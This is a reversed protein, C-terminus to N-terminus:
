SGFSKRFRNVSRTMAKGIPGKESPEFRRITSAEAVAKDAMNRFPSSSKSPNLAFEISGIKDVLSLGRGMVRDLGDPPRRSHKEIFFDRGDYDAVGENTLYDGRDFGTQDSQAEICSSFKDRTIAARYVALLTYRAESKVRHAKAVWKEGSEENGSGFTQILDRETLSIIASYMEGIAYALCTLTSVGYRVTAAVMDAERSGQDRIAKIQDQLSVERVGYRERRKGGKKRHVIDVVTLSRTKKSNTFSGILPAVWRDLEALYNHLRVLKEIEACEAGAIEAPTFGLADAQDSALARLANSEIFAELEKRDESGVSEGKSLKAALRAFKRAEELPVSAGETTLRVPADPGGSEFSNWEAHFLRAACIQAKFYIWFITARNHVSWLEAQEVSSREAIYRSAKDIYGQMLYDAFVPHDAKIDFVAIAATVPDPKSLIATHQLSCRRAQKKNSNSEWLPRLANILATIVEENRPAHMMWRFREALESADVPLCSKPFRVDADDLWGSPSRCFDDSALLAKGYSERNGKIRGSNAFRARKAAEKLDAGAASIDTATLNLNEFPIRAVTIASEVEPSHSM